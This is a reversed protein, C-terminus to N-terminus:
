SAPTGTLSAPVTPSGAPAAPFTVQASYVNASASGILGGTSNVWQLGLAYVYSDGWVLGTADYFTWASATVSLTQGNTAAVAIWPSGSGTSFSTSACTQTTTVQCRYLLAVGPGATEVGSSSDAITAAGWGLFQSKRLQSGNRQDRM